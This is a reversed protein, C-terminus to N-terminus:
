PKVASFFSKGLSPPIGFENTDIELIEQFGVEELLQIVENVDYSRQCLPIDSRHWTEETMLFLTIQYHALRTEPQYEVSKICVHDPKIIHFSGKHQQYIAETNIDFIFRGNKALCSFVNQFVQKLEELSIIHNLSDFVSIVGTFTSPPFSFFRADEVFFKVEPANQKAYKIMENSLDIGIVQYGRMSLSKALQGTGCCLDLIPTSKSIQNLLHKQIIPLIGKSFGAFKQNYMWAFEDYNNITQTLSM